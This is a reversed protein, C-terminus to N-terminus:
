LVCILYVRGSVEDMAIKPRDYVLGHHQERWGKRKASSMSRLRHRPFRPYLRSAQWCYVGQRSEGPRVGLRVGSNGLFAPRTKRVLLRVDAVSRSFRWSIGYTQVQPRGASARLAVVM